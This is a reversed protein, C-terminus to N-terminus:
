VHAKSDENARGSLSFVLGLILMLIAISLVIWPPNASTLKSVNYTAIASPLYEVCGIACIAYTSWRARKRFPIFLLIFIALASALFGAAETRMMGLYLIKQNEALNVWEMQIVDSHYPMFQDSFQYVLGAALMGFANILYLFFAIKYRM